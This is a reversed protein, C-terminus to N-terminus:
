QGVKKNSLIDKVIQWVKDGCPIGGKLGMGVLHNMVVNYRQYVVRRYSVNSHIHKIHIPAVIPRKYHRNYRRNMNFM